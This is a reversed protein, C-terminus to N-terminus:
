IPLRPLVAITRPTEGAVNAATFSLPIEFRRDVTADFVLYLDNHAYFGSALNCTVTGGGPPLPLGECIQALASAPIEPNGSPDQWDISAGLLTLGAPVEATLVPRHMRRNVAAGPAAPDAVHTVRLWRNAVVFQHDSELRSPGITEFRGGSVQAYGSAVAEGATWTASQESDLGLLAVAGLDPTTWRVELEAGAGTLAPTPCEARGAAFLSAPTTEVCGASGGAFTAGRPLDIALSGAAAPGSVVADPTYAVSGDPLADFRRADLQAVGGAVGPSIGVSADIGGGLSAAGYRYRISGDRGLVAEFTVPHGDGLTRAKWRIAVSNGDAAEVLTIADGDAPNGSLELDAMFPAAIGALAGTAADAGRYDEAWDALDYRTAPGGNFGVFGNTSVTVRRTEFGAFPFAFPLTAVAYGDDSDNGEYGHEAFYAADAIVTERGSTLAGAPEPTRTYGADGPLGAGLRVTTTVVSGPQLDGGHAPYNSFGYRVGNDLQLALAPAAPPVPRQPVPPAPPVPKPAPSPAPKPSPAPAARRKREDVLVTRAAVACSRPGGLKTTTCAVLKWRGTKTRRPVRLTRRVAAGQGADLGSTRISGLGVDGRTRLGDRSLHFGVRIRVRRDSRNFTRASLGLTGGVLVKAKTAAIEAPPAPRVPAAVATAPSASAAMVAGGLVAWRFRNIRM